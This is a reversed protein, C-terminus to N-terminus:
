FLIPIHKTTNWIRIPKVALRFHASTDSHAPEKNKKCQVYNQHLMALYKQEFWTLDNVVFIMQHSIRSLIFGCATLGKVIQVASTSFSELHVFVIRSIMRRIYLCNRAKSCFGHDQQDDQVGIIWHDDCRPHRGCSAKSLLRHVAGWCFRAAANPARQDLPLELGQYHLTKRCTLECRAVQEAAM